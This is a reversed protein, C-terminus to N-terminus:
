LTQGVLRTLLLLNTDYPHSSHPVVPRQDVIRYGLRQYLRVAGTNQEFVEISSQHCGADRALPDVQGMLASGVGRGRFEPYSALMNIYFSGPVTRELEVLPRIFEPLESIDDDGDEDLLRYALLFGAIRGELEAMHCNRYTFNGTDSAAKHAGVEEISQGEEAQQAWFWGPIGEGAMLALRAIDPCDRLAATRIHITM